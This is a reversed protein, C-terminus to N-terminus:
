APQALAGFKGSGFYAKFSDIMALGDNIAPGMTSLTSMLEKQTQILQKTDERMDSVQEPNLRKFAELYTTGLDMHADKADQFKEDDEDEEDEDHEEPEQKRKSRKGEFTERAVLAHLILTALFIMMTDLPHLCKCYGAYLFVGFVYVATFHSYNLSWLYLAFFGAIAIHVAETLM